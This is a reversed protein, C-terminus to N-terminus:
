LNNLQALCKEKMDQYKAVKEREADVLKQPARSVFNENALKSEARAIEGDIREIEATLRAKEKEEESPLSSKEIFIFETRFLGIGEADNDVVAKTDAKGGINAYLLIEKGKKTISKLGKLSLLREKQKKETEMLAKYHKLTDETPEIEFGGTGGDIVAQKGDYEEPLIGCSVVCPIGSTRALIATHSSSSGYATMFALIKDRDLSLAESPTLDDTYIICEEDIFTLSTSKGLLIRIVRESVDRVDTARAMLYSDGTEELMVIFSKSADSVAKEANKRYKEINTSVESNFDVDELMVKHISFIEANEEGSEEIAKEYLDELENLAIKKANEYRRLESDTYQVTYSPLKEISNKLFKLKGVAIGNSASIGRNSLKIM